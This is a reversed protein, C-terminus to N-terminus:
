AAVAGRRHPVGPLRAARGAITPGGLRARKAPAFKAVPRLPQPVDPRPLKGLADAGLEALRARVAEPLEGWEVTSEPLLEDAGGLGDVESTEPGTGAPDSSPPM